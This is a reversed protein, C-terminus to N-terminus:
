AIRQGSISFDSNPNGQPDRMPSPIENSSMQANNLDTETPRYEFIGPPMPRTKDTCVALSDEYVSHRTSKNM